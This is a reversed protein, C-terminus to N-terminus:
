SLEPGRPERGALEHCWNSYRELLPWGYRILGYRNKLERFETEKEGPPKNMNVDFLPGIITLAYYFFEEEDEKEYSVEDKKFNRAM